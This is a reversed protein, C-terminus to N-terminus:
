LSAAGAMDKEYAELTNDSIDLFLDHINNDDLKLFVSPYGDDVEADWDSFEPIGSLYTELAADDIKVLQEEVLHIEKSKIDAAFNERGSNNVLFFLAAIGVIGLVAAAVAYNRWVRKRGRNIDVIVAGETEQKRKDALKELFAQFYGGPVEFVNKGKLAALVPSLESIEELAPKDMEPEQLKIQALIGLPFDNFYGEPVSFIDRKEIDAITPSLARLEKEIDTDHTM